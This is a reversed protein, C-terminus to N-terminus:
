RGYELVIKGIKRQQLFSYFERIANAEADFEDTIEIDPVYLMSITPQDALMWQGTTARILLKRVNNNNRYTLVFDPNESFSFVNKNRDYISEFTEGSEVDSLNKFIEFPIKGIITITKCSLYGSNMDQEVLIYKGGLKPVKPRKMKEIHRKRDYINQRIDQRINRWRTLNRDIIIALCSTIFLAIFLKM